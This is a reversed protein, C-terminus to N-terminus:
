KMVQGYDLKNLTTLEPFLPVIFPFAMDTQLALMDIDSLKIKEFEDVNIKIENSYKQQLKKIYPNMIENLFESTDKKEKQYKEFIKYKQFNALLNSSWMDVNKIVLNHKYYGKKYADSTIEKDRILDVIAFKLQEAFEIKSLENKRFVLPHLKIEDLLKGVTWVDGNYNLLFSERLFDANAIQDVLVENENAARWFSRNFLAEKQKRDKLYYPACLLVLEQFTNQSFRVEKGKMLENIQINYKSWASAEILKHEVDTMRSRKQEETIALRNKWGDIRILIYSDDVLIPELIENKKKPGDFITNSIAPIEQSFYSVEKTPVSDLLTYNIYASDFTINNILLQQYISYSDSSDKIRFYSINYTIGAIEYNKFIEASDIITNKYTEEYYHIQRMAQEKRGQIYVQYEPSKTLENESGAEHALLKEAILTNLIIKKHIINDNNCYEPRPTYESRAYFESETIETDLVRAIIKENQDAFLIANLITLTLLIINILIKM